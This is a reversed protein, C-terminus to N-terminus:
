GMPKRTQLLFPTSPTGDPLTLRVAAEGRGLSLLDTPSFSPALSPGLLAADEMSVRMAALLGCNALAEHRVAPRLSGLRQTALVLGVGTKRGEALLTAPEHGVAFRHAEDCVAVFPPLSATQEHAVLRAFGARILRSLLISGLVGAGEAGMARVPLSCLVVAGHRLWADVDLTTEPSSVMQRVADQGLLRNLKSYVYPGINTISPDGTRKDADMWFRKTDEDTCRMVLLDRFHSDTFVRVIAPLAHRMAPDSLLLRIAQRLYLEFMPGGAERMDYWSAFYTYLDDFVRDRSAPDDDFDLLNIRHPCDPSGADVWVLDDRRAHPLNKQIREALTGHPDLVLVGAGTEALELVAQECLTSKGTGTAGVLLAHTTLMQASVRVAQGDAAHGWIGGVSPLDAPTVLRAPHTSSVGPCSFGPAPLRWISATEDPTARDSLRSDRALCQFALFGGLVSPRAAESRVTAPDGVFARGAETTLAAPLREAEAAVVVRVDLARHGELALQASRRALRQPGNFATRHLLGAAQRALLRVREHEAPTLPAPRATVEAMVPADAALMWLLLPGLAGADPGTVALGVAGGPTDDLVANAGAADGNMDADPVDFLLLMEAPSPAHLTRAARARLPVFLDSTAPADLVYAGEAVVGEHLLPALDELTDFLSARAEEPSAGEARVIIGVQMRGAIAAYRVTLSIAGSLCALTDALARHWRAAAAGFRAAEREDRPEAVGRLTYGTHASWRGDPLPYAPQLCADSGGMQGKAGAAAVADRARQFAAEVRFMSELGDQAGRPLDLVVVPLRPALCSVRRMLVVDGALTLVGDLVTGYASLAREASEPTAFHLLAGTSAAAPALLDFAESDGVFLLHM